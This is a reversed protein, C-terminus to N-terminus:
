RRADACSNRNARHLLHQGQTQRGGALFPQFRPVLTKVQTQQLMIESVWIEYPDSTRRWPLDRPNELYGALLAERLQPFRYRWEPDIM